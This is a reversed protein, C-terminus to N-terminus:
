KYGFIKIDKIYTSKLIHADAFYYFTDNVIGRYPKYGIERSIWNVNNTSKIEDYIIDPCTKTKIHFRFPTETRYTYQVRLISYDSINLYGIKYLHYPFNNTDTNNYLLYWAPAVGPDHPNISNDNNCGVIMVTLIILISQKM